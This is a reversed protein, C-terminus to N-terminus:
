VIPLATTTKSNEMAFRSTVNKPPLTAIWSANRGPRPDRGIRIRV